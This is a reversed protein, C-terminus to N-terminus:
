SIVSVASPGRTSAAHAGGGRAPRARPRRRACGPARAAPRPRGGPRVPTHARGARRRATARPPAPRRSCAPDAPGGPRCRAVVLPDHGQGIRIGVGLGGVHQLARARHHAQVARLVRAVQAGDRAHGLPRARRADIMGRRPLGPTVGVTAFADAPATSCRAIARTPLMTLKRWSAARRRVSPSRPGGRPRLPSGPAPRAAHRAAPSPRRPPPGAGAPARRTRGGARADRHGAPTADSLM